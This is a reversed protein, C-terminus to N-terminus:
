QRLREIGESMNNFQFLYSGSVLINAGAEICQQATTENIGGDVEIDFPLLSNKEEATKPTIGGARIDLKNCIERTFQVKDLVDPMFDQGGFGPSVTMLLIMDCKDLYKPIM